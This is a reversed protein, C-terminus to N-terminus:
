RTTSAPMTPAPWTSSPAQNSKSSAGTTSSSRRSTRGPPSCVPTIVAPFEPNPTPQYVGPGPPLTYPLIRCTPATMWGCRWFRRPPMKGSISAPRPRPMTPAPASRRAYAAEVTSRPRSRRSDPLPALLGLLTQRAAAAVAADPSAGAAGARRPIASTARISPTSRTTCRSRSWPGCARQPQPGGFRPAVREAIINWDTVIDAAAPRPLTLVLLLVVCARCTIPVRRSAAVVFNMAVRPM